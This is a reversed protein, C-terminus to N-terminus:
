TVSNAYVHFTTGQQWRITLRSWSWILKELYLLQSQSSMSQPLQPKFALTKPNGQLNIQTISISLSVIHVPSTIGQQLCNDTCALEKNSHKHTSRTTAYHHHTSTLQGQPQM